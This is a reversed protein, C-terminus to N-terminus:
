DIVDEIVDWLESFVRSGFSKKKKKEKRSRKRPMEKGAHGGYHAASKPRKEKTSSPMQKLDHLSAGCSACSLEHLAEGRLVLAARTGCYSCTAVKTAPM